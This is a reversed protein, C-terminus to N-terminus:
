GGHRMGWAEGGGRSEGSPPENHWRDPNWDCGTSVDFPGFAAFGYVRHRVAALPSSAGTSIPLTKAPYALAVTAATPTAAVSASALQLSPAPAWGLGDDVLDDLLEGELAVAVPDVDAVV